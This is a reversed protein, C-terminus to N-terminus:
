ALVKSLLTCSKAVKATVCGSDGRISRNTARMLGVATLLKGIAALAHDGPGIGRATLKSIVCLARQARYPVTSARRFSRVTLIIRPNKQVNQVWQCKVNATGIFVSGRDVVFWIKVHYAKGSKRWLSHSYITHKGALRKLKLLVNGDM